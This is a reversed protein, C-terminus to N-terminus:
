RASAPKPDEPKKQLEQNILLFSKNTRRLARVDELPRKYHQALVFVNSEEIFDTGLIRVKRDQAVDGWTAGGDRQRILEGPPVNARRSILLLPALETYAALKQRWARVADERNKSWAAIMRVYDAELDASTDQVQAPAGTVGALLVLWLRVM